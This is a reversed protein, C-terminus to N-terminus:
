SIFGPSNARVNWHWSLYSIRRTREPVQELATVADVTFDAGSLEIRIPKASDVMLRERHYNASLLVLVSDFDSVSSVSPAVIGLYAPMPATDIVVTTGGSSLQPAFDGAYQVSRVRQADTGLIAPALLRGVLAGVVFFGLTAV